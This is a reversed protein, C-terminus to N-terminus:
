VLEVDWGGALFRRILIVDKLDVSDDANVDCNEAKVTVHWGGALFRTLAIVDALGVEGDDDVDGPLHTDIMLMAGTIIVPVNQLDVDFTGDADYTMTITTDGAVATDKVVFTLTLLTGTEAHVEHSTADDWLINFPQAALNGGITLNGTEFMGGAQVDTLTLVDADYGLSLTMGALGPNQALDVTVTVTDGRRVTQASATMTLYATGPEGAVHKLYPFFFVGDESDATMDNPYGFASVRLTAGDESIYYTYHLYDQDNEAEAVAAADFWLDGVNLGDSSTPLLIFGENPDVGVTRLYAFITKGEESDRTYDETAASVVRLTAGDDSLYFQADAYANATLMNLGAADFWYAGNELGEESTPLLTFGANPDVGAQRLYNFYVAGQETDRTYDTQDGFIMRLTTGDASLYFRANDYPLSFAESLAAADYWWEGDSLGADSTPLRLFGEEVVPDHGVQILFNYYYRSSEKEKQFDLTTGNYIMRLVSGDNKLYFQANLYDDSGSYAAFGVIDFWYDGDSLGDASTPLLSFGANPDITSGDAQHLFSYVLESEEDDKPFDLTEGMLLVRILNGDASLYAEANVLYSQGTAEAIGAADYWYDGIALGDPSKPLHIFSVGTDPDTTVEHLYAYVFESDEEGKPFDFTQGLIIARLVSGDANLYADSDAYYAEGTDAAIGAADFWYAGFALGDPSKPLLTFGANPDVGVQHLYGFLIDGFAGDGKTYDSPSDNIIVRLTNGDDSLYYEASLYYPGSDGVAGALSSADFWWAGASLGEASTPIQTFGANPDVGVQRLYGFAFSQDARTWELPVANGALYIRLMDGDDSLYYTADAYAAGYTQAFGDADFWYTGDTLGEASKPLLTFDEAFTSLMFMPTALLVCLLISLTRKFCSTKM